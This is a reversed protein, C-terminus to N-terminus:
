RSREQGLARSRPATKAPPEAPLPRMKLTLAFQVVQATGLQSRQASQLDADSYFPSGALTTMFRAVGDYSLASGSLTLSLGGQGQAVGASALWADHPTRGALDVLMDSWPVERAELSQLLSERAKLAEIKAELVLVEAVQRRVVVLKQNIAATQAVIQSNRWVEWLYSAVLTGVVMLAVAMVGSEPLLTRRHRRPILNIRIM